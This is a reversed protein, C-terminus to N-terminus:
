SGWSTKNSGSKDGSGFSIVTNKPLPAFAASVSGSNM